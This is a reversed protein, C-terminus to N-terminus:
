LLKRNPTYGVQFQSRVSESYKAVARSRIIIWVLHRPLPNWHRPLVSWKSLDPKSLSWKSLSVVLNINTLKGNSGSSFLSSSAFSRGLVDNTTTLSVWKNEVDRENGWRCFLKNKRDVM